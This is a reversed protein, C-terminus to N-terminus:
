AAARRRLHYLVYIAAFAAALVFWTIAYKLHDNPLNVRIPAPKPWGGPPAPEAAQVYYTRTDKLKAHAAMAPLDIQFWFNKDPANDPSFRGKRPQARLYGIISLEGNIQGAQRSTPDKRGLPIWGRNVLVAGGASLAMPTVVHYGLRGRWSRGSLYMERGHLFRGRLRVRRYETKSLDPAPPLAAAPSAIRTRRTEILDAKWARREVQWAGLGVMFLVAPIAM